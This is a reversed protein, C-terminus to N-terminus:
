ENGEEDRFLDMFPREPEKLPADSQVKGSVGNERRALLRRAIMRALPRLAEESIYPRCAALEQSPQQQIDGTM